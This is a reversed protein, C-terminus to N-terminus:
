IQKDETKAVEVRVNSNNSISNHFRVNNSISNSRNASSANNRSVSNNVNNRSANNNPDRHRNISSSHHRTNNHLLMISNHPLMNILLPLINIHHMETRMRIPLRTRIPHTIQQLILPRIRTLQMIRQLIPHKILMRPTPQQAKIQMQQTHLERIDKIQLFASMRTRAPQRKILVNNPLRRFMDKKQHQCKQQMQGQLFEARAMLGRGAVGAMFQQDTLM